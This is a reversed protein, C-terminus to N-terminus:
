TEWALSRRLPRLLLLAVALYLAAAVVYPVLNGTEARVTVSNPGVNQAAHFLIVVLLGSGTRNYLWAAIVAVALTRVCFLLYPLHSQPMFSMAFLPAHWACTILGVAVAAAAPDVRRQLRPLLYGRWGVEEGLPRHLGGVLHQGSRQGIRHHGEELAALPHVGIVQPGVEVGEPQCTLVPKGRQM